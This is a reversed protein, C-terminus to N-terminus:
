RTVVFWIGGLLLIFVAGSYCFDRKDLRTHLKRLRRQSDAKLEYAHKM